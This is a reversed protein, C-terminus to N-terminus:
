VNHQRNQNAHQPGVLGSSFIVFLIVCLMVKRQCPFHVSVHCNMVSYYVIGRYTTVRLSKNVKSIDSAPKFLAIYRLGERLVELSIEDISQENLMTKISKVLPCFRRVFLNDDFGTIIVAVINSETRVRLVILM